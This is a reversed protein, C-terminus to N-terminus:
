IAINEHFFDIDKVGEKVISLTKDLYEEAKAYEKLNICLYGLNIYIHAEETRNGTEM